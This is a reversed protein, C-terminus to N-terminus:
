ACSVGTGAREKDLISRPPPPHKGHLCQVLAGLTTVQNLHTGTLNSKKFCIALAFCARHAFSDQGAGSIGCQQGQIRNLPLLAFCAGGAETERTGVDLGRDPKERIKEKIEGAIM